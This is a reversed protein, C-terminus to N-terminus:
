CVKWCRGTTGKSSGERVEGASMMVGLRFPWLGPMSLLVISCEDVRGVVIHQVAGLIHWSSHQADAFIRFYM